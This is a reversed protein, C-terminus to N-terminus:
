LQREVIKEIQKAQAEWSVDKAHWDFWHNFSKWVRVWHIRTKRRGSKKKMKDM